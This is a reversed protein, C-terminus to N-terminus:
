DMYRDAHDCIVTVVVGKELESAIRLAAVVNAGGSNGAALGEDIALQEAMDWGEETEIWLVDDLLDEHYIRPVISSPMHKLGELGHFADAPQAGIVKIEESYGKLGRGTGMVTGSTGTCAVFHTVRGDTQKWIEPATTLTHALPNSPNSYQDAYFYKGETDQEMLERVLTIAGDSGAMPDSLIIEAGFTTVIHRRQESVNGPMVLTIPVDLAAGLMAYAIGTNGSTADILRQGSGLKGDAIADLIIQRAPRDKVSGGPNMFELKAWVEVEKPLDRTVGQLKVLPTNGIMEILNNYRKPPHVGSNRSTWSRHPTV